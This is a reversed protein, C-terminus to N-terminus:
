KKQEPCKCDEQTVISDFRVQQAPSLLGRMRLRASERLAHYRPRVEACVTKYEDRMEALIAQMQEAQEPTLDIERKLTGFYSSTDRISHTLEDTETRAAFLGSLAAGTVGGLAFVVLLVAMVKLWAKSQSNM